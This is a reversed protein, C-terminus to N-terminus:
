GKSSKKSLRQFRQEARLEKREKRVRANNRRRVEEPVHYQEQCLKRAADKGIPNGDKDRLEYPRQDRLIAYIRNLLHSASACIAQFHHKGKNLMQDYYCAAIDPDYQRAVETDIFITKKLLNPGAQTIKLGKAEENGSQSSYPILGCWSRFHAPTPFRRIDGIFAIYIAASDEGIGYLTELCRSPHLKSYLPHIVEQRLQSIQEQIADLRAQERAQGAQLQQYDLWDKQGYFKVVLNAQEFLAELWGNEHDPFDNQWQTQLHALGSAVVEWPNYWHSRWWLTSEAGELWNKSDGLWGLTDTASIRNKLAIRLEALRTMERCARQLSLHEADPLYVPRLREPITQYMRALVRADIRDSKARRQYVKRQAATEQGNVRYVKAGRQVLYSGITYWAIGTAELVAVLEVESETGAKAAELMKDIEAPNTGFSIPSGVFENSEKDLIAAKHAARVALDIGLIRTKM